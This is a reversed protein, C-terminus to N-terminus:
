RTTDHDFEKLYTNIYELIIDSYLSKCFLRHIKENIIIIIDTGYDRKTIYINSIDIIRDRNRIKM